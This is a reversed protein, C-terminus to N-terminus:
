RSSRRRAGQTAHFCDMAANMAALPLLTPLVQLVVCIVYLLPRAAAHALLGAALTAGATVGLLGTDARASCLREALVGYGLSVAVRLLATVIYFGSLQGSAFASIFLSTSAITALTQAGVALSAMALAPGVANWEGPRVDLLRTGM